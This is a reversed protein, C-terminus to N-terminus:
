SHELRWAFHKELTEQELVASEQNVNSRPVLAAPMNARVERDLLDPFFVLPVKGHPRWNPFRNLLKSGCTRCFARIPGNPKQFEQVLEEGEIFSLWHEELCVAHYLPAAHARRCSDCHCYLNFIPREGAPIDVAFRVGGCYCHGEVHVTEEPSQPM